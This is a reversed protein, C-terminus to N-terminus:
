FFKGKLKTSYGSEEDDKDFFKLVGFQTIGLFKGNSLKITYSHDIQHYYVSIPEGNFAVGLDRSDYLYFQNEKTLQLVGFVTEPTNSIHPV